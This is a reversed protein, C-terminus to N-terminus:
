LESFYEEVESESCEEEKQMAVCKIQTLLSGFDLNSSWVNVLDSPSTM